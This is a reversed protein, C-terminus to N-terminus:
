DSFSIQGHGDDGETGGPDVDVRLSEQGLVALPGFLEGYLQGSLDADREGLIVPLRDAEQAGVVRRVALGRGQAPHRRESPNRHLLQEGQEGALRGLFHGVDGAQGLRATAHSFPGTMLVVSIVGSTAGSKPSSMLVSRLSAIMQELPLRSM